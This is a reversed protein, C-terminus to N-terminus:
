PRSQEAAYCRRIEKSRSLAATIGVAIALYAAGYGFTTLFPPEKDSSLFLFSLLLAFFAAGIGQRTKRKVGDVAAISRKHFLILAGKCDM